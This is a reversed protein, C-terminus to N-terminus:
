VVADRLFDRCEGFETGVALGRSWRDRGVNKRLDGDRRGLGFEHGEEEVIEM